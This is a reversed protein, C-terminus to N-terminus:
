VFPDWHLTVTQALWKGTWYIFTFKTSWEVISIDDYLVMTKYKYHNNMM